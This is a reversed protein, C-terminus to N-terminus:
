PTKGEPDLVHLTNANQDVAWVEHSPAAPQALPPDVCGAVCGRASICAFLWRYRYM